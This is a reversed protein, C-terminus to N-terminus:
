EFALFKATLVDFYSHGLSLFLIFSVVFLVGWFVLKRPLSITAWYSMQLFRTTLSSLCIGKVFFRMGEIYCSNKSFLIWISTPVFIVQKINLYSMDHSFIRKWKLLDYWILARGKHLSYFHCLGDLLSWRSAVVMSCSAAPAKKKQSCLRQSGSISFLHSGLRNM